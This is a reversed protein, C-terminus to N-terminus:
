TQPSSAMVWIMWDRVSSGEVSGAEWTM